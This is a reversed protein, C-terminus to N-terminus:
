KKKEDAQTKIYVTKLNSVRERRVNFRHTTQCCKLNEIYGGCEYMKVKCEEGVMGCIYHTLMLKNKLSWIMGAQNHPHLLPLSVIFHSSFSWSVQSGGGKHEM